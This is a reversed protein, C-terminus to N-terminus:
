VLSISTWADSIRSLSCTDEGHNLYVGYRDATIVVLPIGTYYAETVAPLYNSAATGSTCVCAVPAKLQAALGMAYYAASREDTVRHLTFAGENYEFMRIIPVDRGGPSLVIHRIGYDRLLTALMRIKVFDFNSHLAAVEPHVIESPYKKDSKKASLANKLWALATARAEKVNEDAERWSVRQGHFEGPLFM